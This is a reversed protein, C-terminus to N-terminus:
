PSKAPQYHALLKRQYDRWLIGALVQLRDLGPASKEILDDLQADPTTRLLNSTRMSGLSSKYWSQPKRILAAYKEAEAYRELRGLASAMSYYTNDLLDPNETKIVQLARELAATDGLLVFMPAAASLRYAGEKTYALKVSAAMQRAREMQGLEALMIATDIRDTAYDTTEFTVVKSAAAAAERTMGQALYTRVLGRFALSRKPKEKTDPLAAAWQEALSFNQVGSAQTVLVSMTDAADFYEGEALKALRRPSDFDGLQMFGMVLQYLAGYELKASVRGLERQATPLDGKALALKVPEFQRAAAGQNVYDQVTQNQFDSKPDKALSAFRRAESENGLQKYLGAITARYIWDDPANFWNSVTDVAKAFLDPHISIYTVGNAHLKRKEPDTITALVPILEEAWARSRAFDIRTLNNYFFVGSLANIKEDPDQIERCAALHADMLAVLAPRPMGDIKQSTMILGLLANARTLPDKVLALNENAAELLAIPDNGYGPTLTARLTATKGPEIRASLQQNKFKKLKLRVEIEGPPLRPLELPAVGLSEEGRFVQAGAPITEVRLAGVPFQASLPEAGSRVDVTYKLDPWGSRHFVVAGPGFAMDDIIAPASGSREVGFADTAQWTTDDLNSVLSFPGAIATSAKAAALDTKLQRLAAEYAGTAKAAAEPDRSNLAAEAKSRAAKAPHTPLNDNLWAVYREQAQTRATLLRLEPTSDAKAGAAVADARSKLGTLESEAALRGRMLSDFTSNLAGIQTRIEALLKDKREREAKAAAASRAKEQAEAQQRALEAQQRAEAEIRAKEANDTRIKLVLWSGGALVAMAVVVGILLSKSGSKKPSAAPSPPVPPPAASSVYAAHPVSPPLPPLSPPPAPAPLPPLSPIPPLRSVTSPAVPRNSSLGPLSVTDAALVLTEFATTIEALSARYKEQLGPTLARAIKDELVARLESFRAEIQAPTANAPLQLLLAAEAPSM